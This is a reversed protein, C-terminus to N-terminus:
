RARRSSAPDGQRKAIVREFLKKPLLGIDEAFM